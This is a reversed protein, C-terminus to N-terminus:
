GGSQKMQNIIPNCAEGKQNGYVFNLNDMDEIPNQLRLSYLNEYGLVHILPYTLDFLAVRRSMWMEETWFSMDCYIIVETEKSPIIKALSRTTIDSVNINIAGEIHSCEYAEKGRIDLIVPKSNQTIDLFPTLGITRQKQSFQIEIARRLYEERGIPEGIDEAGVKQQGVEAQLVIPMLLLILLSWVVTKQM